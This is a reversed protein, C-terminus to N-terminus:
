SDHGGLSHVAEDVTHYIRHEGVTAILGSRRMMDVVPQRVDALAIDVGANRLADVLQELMETSTIDLDPSAGADLIVAKPLPDAGGVLRKVQDRVLNANAYFLPSELRLV